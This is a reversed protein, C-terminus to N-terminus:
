TLVGFVDMIPKLNEDVKEMLEDLEQPTMKLERLAIHNDLSISGEEATGYGKIEAIDSALRLCYALKKCGPQPCSQPHRGFFTIFALEGPLRWHQIVHVGVLPAIPDIAQAILKGIREALVEPSKDEGIKQKSRVLVRHTPGYIAVRLHTGGLDVGM